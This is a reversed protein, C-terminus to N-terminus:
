SDESTDRREIWDREWGRSCRSMTGPLSPLTPPSRPTTAPSHLTPTPVPFLLFLARGRRPRRTTCCRTRGGRRRRRESESPRSRCPTRGGRKREGTSSAGLGGSFRRPAVYLPLGMHEQGDDRRRVPISPLEADFPGARAVARALGDEFVAHTIDVGVRRAMVDLLCLVGGRGWQGNLVCNLVHRSYGDYITVCTEDISLPPGLQYPSPKLTLMGDAPPSRVLEICVGLEDPHDRDMGYPYAVMRVGFM